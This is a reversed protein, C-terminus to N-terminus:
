ADLLPRTLLSPLQQTESYTRHSQDIEVGATPQRCRRWRPLFFCLGATSDTPQRNTPDDARQPEQNSSMLDTSWWAAHTNHGTGYTLLPRSRDPELDGRFAAAIVYTRTSANRRRKPWSATSTKKATQEKRGRNVGERVGAQQQLQGVHTRDGYSDHVPRPQEHREARARQRQQRQRNRVDRPRLRLPGRLLGCFASFPSPKLRELPAKNWGRCKRCTLKGAPGRARLTDHVLTTINSRGRNNHMHQQAAFQRKTHRTKTRQSQYCRQIYLLQPSSTCTTAASVFNKDVYM